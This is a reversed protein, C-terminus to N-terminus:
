YLMGLVYLMGTNYCVQICILIVSLINTENSVQFMLRCVEPFHNPYLYLDSGIGFLLPVM